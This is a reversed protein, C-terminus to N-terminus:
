RASALTLIEQAAADNPNLRLAQRAEAAAAARDHADLLANALNRHANASEPVLVVIRRFLRVAEDLEGATANAIATATLRDAVQIRLRAIDARAREANPHTSFERLFQQLEQLGEDLNGRAALQTGLAFRAEPFDSVAARLQSVMEDYRGSQQLASALNSRARGHPWREVTVTWMTLPSHYERNRKITAIICATAVIALTAAAIARRRRCIASVTVVALVVVAMSPLYM